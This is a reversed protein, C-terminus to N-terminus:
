RPGASGARRWERWMARYAAEVAAALGAGGSLPSAAVRGRLGARPAALRLLDSTLAAAVELYRGRTEAVLEGPGAATLM